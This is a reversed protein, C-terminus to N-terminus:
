ETESFSERCAVGFKFELHFIQILICGGLEQPWVLKTYGEGSPQGPASKKLAQLVSVGMYTCIYIYSKTNICATKQITMETTEERGIYTNYICYIYIFSVVYVCQMLINVCLSLRVLEQAFKGFCEM